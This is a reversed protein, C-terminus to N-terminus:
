MGVQEKFRFHVDTTVNLDAMVARDSLDMAVAFFVGEQTAALQQQRRLQAVVRASMPEGPLDDAGYGALEVFGFPLEPQGWEERWSTVMAQQNCGYSSDGCNSEGQYWIAHHISYNQLPAIMGNYLSSSNCYPPCSLKQSRAFRQPAVGCKKLGSAPTWAQINTGGVDSEILGIPTGPYAEYIRRGYMWCIASFGFPSPRSWHMPVKTDYQPTAAAGGGVNHNWPGIAGTTRMAGGLDKAAAIEATANFAYGVSKEMNSQGSCLIVNGVLVGVNVAASGSPAAAFSVTHNGLSPQLPEVLCVKWYGEASVASSPGATVASASGDKTVTVTVRDGPVGMGTFCPKGAQLVALDSHLSHPRLFRPSPQCITANFREEGAKTVAGVCGQWTPSLWAVAGGAGASAPCSHHISGPGCNSSVAASWMQSCPLGKPAHPSNEFYSVTSAVGALCAADLPCAARAAGPAAAAAQLPPALALLMTALMPVPCAKVYFNLPM